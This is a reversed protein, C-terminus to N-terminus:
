KTPLQQNTHLMKTTTTFLGKRWEFCFLTLSLPVPVYLQSKQSKWFGHLVFIMCVSPHLPLLMWQYYDSSAEFCLEKLINFTEEHQNSLPLSWKLFRYTVMQYVTQKQCLLIELHGRNPIFMIPIILIVFHHLQLTHTLYSSRLFGHALVYLLSKCIMIVIPPLWNSQKSLSWWLYRNLSPMICTAVFWCDDALMTLKSFPHLQMKLLLITRSSLICFHVL